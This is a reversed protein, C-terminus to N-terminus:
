LLQMGTVIQYLMFEINLMVTFKGAYSSVFSTSGTNDGTSSMFKLLPEIFAVLLM